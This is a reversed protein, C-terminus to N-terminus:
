RQDKRSVPCYLLLEGLIYVLQGHRRIEKGNLERSLYFLPNNKIPGYDIIKSCFLIVTNNFEPLDLLADQTILHAFQEMCPSYNQHNTKLEEIERWMRHIFKNIDFKINEKSTLFKLIKNMIKLIWYLCGYGGCETINDIYEVLHELYKDIQLDKDELLINVTESHKEYFLNKLRGISKAKHVERKEFIRALYILGKIDLMEHKFNRIFTKNESLNNIIFMCIATKELEINADNLLIVSSKYLQSVLDKSNEILKVPWLLYSFLTKGEDVSLATDSTLLCFTYQLIIKFEKMIVNKIIERGESNAKQCRNFIKLIVLVDNLSDLKNSYQRNVVNAINQMKNQIVEVYLKLDESHKDLYLLGFDIDALTDTVYKYLRRPEEENSALKIDLTGIMPYETNEIENIGLQLLSFVKALVKWGLGKCSNRIFHAINIYFAKRLAIINCPVKAIDTLIEIADQDSSFTVHLEAEALVDTLHHLPVPSLQAIPIAKLINTIQDDKLADKLNGKILRVDHATEYFNIDDLAQLLVTAEIVSNIERKLRYQVCKLRVQSNDHKLGLNFACNLWCYHLEKVWGFMQLSPLVINSQKEELSDILIFFNDWQKRLDNSRRHDWFLITDTASKIQINKDKSGIYDIARKALYVSIKRHSYDSSMLGFLIIRWFEYHCVVESEFEVKGKADVAPLYYDSLSSLVKLAMEIDKLEKVYAWVRDLINYGEIGKFIKPVTSTIFYIRVKDDAHCIAKELPVDMFILDIKLGNQIAADLISDCVKFYLLAKSTESEIEASRPMEQSLDINELVQQILHQSNSVLTSKNLSLVLKSIKCVNEVTDPQINKILNVVFDFENKNECDSKDQSNILNKYELLQLANLLHNNSHNSREMIPKLRQDVLDEDLDLLDLFSLMGQSHDM